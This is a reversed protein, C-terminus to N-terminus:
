YWNIATQPSKQTENCRTRFLIADRWYLHKTPMFGNAAAVVLRQYYSLFSTQCRLLSWSSSAAQSRMLISASPTWSLGWAQKCTARSSLTTWLSSPPSTTAASGRKQSWTLRWTTPTWIYVRLPLPLLSACAKVKVPNSSTMGVQHCRCFIPNLRILFSLLSCVFFPHSGGDSGILHHAHLLDTLESHRAMLLLVESSESDADMDEEEGAARQQDVPARLKQLIQLFPLCVYTSLVNDAWPYKVQSEPWSDLLKSKWKQKLNM